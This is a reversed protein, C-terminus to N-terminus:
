FYFPGLIKISYLCGIQVTEKVKCSQRCQKQFSNDDHSLINIYRGRYSIWKKSKILLQANLTQRLKKNQKMKIKQKNQLFFFFDSENLVTSEDHVLM